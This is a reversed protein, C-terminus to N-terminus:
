SGPRCRLQGDQSGNRRLRALLARFADHLEPDQGVAGLAIDARQGGQSIRQAPCSVLHEQEPIGPCQTRCLRQAQGRRHQGAIDALQKGLPSPLLRAARGAREDPQDVRVGRGPHAFRQRRCTAAIGDYGGPQRSVLWSNQSDNLFASLRARWSTSPRGALLANHVLWGM